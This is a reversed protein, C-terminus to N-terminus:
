RAQEAASIPKSNVTKHDNEKRSQSVENIKRKKNNVGGSGSSPAVQNTKM